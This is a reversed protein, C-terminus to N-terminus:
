LEGLDEDYEFAEAMQQKFLPGAEPLFNIMKAMYEKLALNEYIVKWTVIYGKNAGEELMVAVAERGHRDIITELWSILLNSAPRNFQKVWARWNSIIITVYLDGDESSEYYPIGNPSVGGFGNGDYQPVSSPSKRKKRTEQGKQASRQRELRRAVTGKLVEGTEFNVYESKTYLYNPTIEKLERIAKKTVRQPVEPLQFDFMYGRAGANRLFRKIRNLEKNYAERNPSLKKAM